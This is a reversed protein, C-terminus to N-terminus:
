TFIRSQPGLQPNVRGSRTVKHTADFTFRPLERRPEQGQAAWCSWCYAHNRGLFALQSGSPCGGAAGVEWAPPVPHVLTRSDVAPWSSEQPQQRRATLNAHHHLCSLARQLETRFRMACAAITMLPMPLPRPCPLFTM